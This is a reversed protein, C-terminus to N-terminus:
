ARAFDALVPPTSADFGVVDLMGADDPDAIAFGNSTMGVVILKASIGRADRYHQLARAPPVDGAWTEDDTYVVFTDVDVHNMRAWIMPLACDTGGMPLTGLQEAVTDLRSGLKVKTLEVAGGGWKGGFMPGASTFAAIVPECETAAAIMAMAASAIRPTLTPVGPVATGTAMSGSVDLAIMVRKGIPAVLEFSAYFADELADVIVAVPLWPALGRGRGTRYSALAILIAIPHVGSLWDRDRLRRVIRTTAATGAGLLGVRTLAPLERLTEAAPMVDLLAEWVGAHHLLRAPVSARAIRHTRILQAALVPDDTRQMRDLAVILALAPDDIAGAPLESKVAWAFLRDHSPSVARPHALRLLDRNSWGAKSHAMALQVALESAPRANFWTGVANRMGRGWGGFRRAYEVFRMLQTSTRCVDPLAAYASRRMSEDGLKAAVALSFIAPDNKPVPGSKSADVIRALLRTGDATLCREVLHAHQATLDLEGARYTGGECGLQLFRELRTWDSPWRSLLDLHSLKSM